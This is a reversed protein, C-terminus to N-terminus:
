LLRSISSLSRAAYFRGSRERYLDPYILDDFPRKPSHHEPDKFLVAKGVEAARACVIDSWSDGVMISNSLNLKYDRAAKHIMGPKPKRCTCPSSLKPHHPCHYTHRIQIGQARFQSEIWQSFQHFQQNDYYGRAIGSQNTVIIITYGKRQAAACLDFIGKVFSCDEPRHVYGHNVNIVGDRDLLLAKRTLYTM